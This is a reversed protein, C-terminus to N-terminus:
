KRASTRDVGEATGGFAPPDVDIHLDFPRTETGDASTWTGRLSDGQRKGEWQGSVDTGNESEEMVLDDGEAEGALLIKASRGFYFYEGELGEDAQPKPRLRMQISKDGLKGRLTLPRAFPGSAAASMAAPVGTAQSVAPADMPPAALAVNLAAPLLALAILAHRACVM